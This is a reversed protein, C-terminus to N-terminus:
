SNNLSFSAIFDGISKCGEFYAIKRSIESGSSALETEGVLKDFKAQLQEWSLPMEFEGLALPAWKRMTKGDNTVLEVDAAGWHSPNALEYDLVKQDLVIRIKDEIAAIEENNMSEHMSGESIYGYKLAVALCFPMSTQTSVLTKPHPNNAQNVFKGARILIEKVNDPTLNQEKRWAVLVDIAPHLRRVCAHIKFYNRLIEYNSGLDAAFGTEDYEKAFAQFFGKKGELITEPGTMGFKALVAARVGNAAGWAPSLAKGMTGDTVYENLSGAHLAAIGLANKTQEEDMNYLKAAAAAAGIAGCIGTADFGREIYASPNIIKGLRAYIEYGVVIANIVDAGSAGIHEGIALATSVVVGAPHGMAERHGDDLDSVRIMFANCFAAVEKQVKGCGIVTSEPIGMTGIAYRAMQKGETMYRGSIMTGCCDLVCKKAQKIVEPPLKEFKENVVYKALLRVLSM